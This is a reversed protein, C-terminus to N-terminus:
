ASATKSSAAKKAKKATSSKAAKTPTKDGTEGTAEQSSSLLAFLKEAPLPNEKMKAKGCLFRVVKQEMLPAEIQLRAQPNKEYYDMIQKEQGPYQRLQAQLAQRYEAEEVQLNNEKTIVRLILGLRTKREVTKEYEKRLQAETKKSSELFEKRKDADNPLSQMMREVEEHLLGKPLPFDKTEELKAFVQRQLIAHTAEEYESQLKNKVAARLDDLSKMGFSSALSEDVASPKAEAVDKVTMAFMAKKGALEAKPYDKPFNVPVNIDSGQVAGVLGAEFDPLFRGAGLEVPTNTGQGGEFAVGDVTGSFDVTVRDGKVAKAGDKRAVFTKREKALRGLTEEIDKPTVSAVPKDLTYASFDELVIDPMCEVVLTFTIDKGEDILDKVTGEIDIKPASVPDLNRKTLVDRSAQQVSEQVVDSMLSAGMTKKLHALPVKGPRFGKMQVQGQAEQLRKSFGKDLESHPISVHFTHLLGQKNEKEVHM